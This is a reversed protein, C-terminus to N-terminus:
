VFHFNSFIVYMVQSDIELDVYMNFRFLFHFSLLIDKFSSRSGVACICSYKSLAFVFIVTLILKYKKEVLMVTMALCHYYPIYIGFFLFSVMRASICM